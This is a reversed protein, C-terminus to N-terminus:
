YQVAEVCLRVVLRVFGAAARIVGVLLSGLMWLQFSVPWVLLAKARTSPHYRRLWRNFDHHWLVGWGTLFILYLGGCFSYLWIEM